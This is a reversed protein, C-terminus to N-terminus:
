WAFNPKGNMMATRPRSLARMRAAKSVRMALSRAVSNAVAQAWTSRM